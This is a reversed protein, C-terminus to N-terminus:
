KEKFLFFVVVADAVALLWGSRYAKKVVQFCNAEEDDDGDYDDDNKSNRRQKRSCFQSIIHCMIVPLTFPVLHHSPPSPHFFSQAKLFPFSM